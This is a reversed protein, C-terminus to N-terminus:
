AKEEKFGEMLTAGGYVLASGILILGLHGTVILLFGAIAAIGGLTFKAKM